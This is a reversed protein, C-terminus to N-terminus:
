LVLFSPVRVLPSVRVRPAVTTPRPLDPGHQSPPVRLSSSSSGFLPLVCVVGSFGLIGDLSAAAACVM